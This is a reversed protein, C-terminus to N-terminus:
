AIRYLYIREDPLADECEWEEIPWMYSVIRTGPKLEQNFKKILRKNTPGYLFLAVVSADKINRVFFNGFKLRVSSRCASLQVAFWSFLYRFPDAEIGVAHAGYRKAATIVIRGDGSGLDYLVDCERVDALDLMKYVMSQPTPDYGAGIMLAWYKWIIYGLIVLALIILVEM